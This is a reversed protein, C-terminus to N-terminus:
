NLGTGCGIDVVTDGRKLDLALAAKTRYAFVRYGVLYYLNSTVDYNGARRRYLDRIADTRMM